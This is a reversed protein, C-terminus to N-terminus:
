NNEISEEVDGETELYAKELTNLQDESADWYGRNNYEMMQEVIELYAYANNEKMRNRMDEDEVYVSHMDDYIWAEVEGTTAALGMVNEFRDSIRQAGHYKHDLMGDIWKPNLLRTRIGREISKSVTETEMREGTTDTIYVKVKKGRAMEVSKSLGGFFEYYHDLDTVEYENSSRIQSVLDVCELNLEYTQKEDQGRYNESYIHKMSNIFSDGFQNEDEWNKTEIISTLNTGYEGEKPGYIRSYSLEAAKTEEMGQERLKAYINKANAKLGNMHDPEDLEAIRKFLKNLNDIINPFMDRFFGCMNVVVDVRPRKLVDLPIIEYIPEWANAAKGVNVGLYSLIQAVTEGQTRSTEIGWLIVATSKPYTDNEAKYAEITNEAIKKGREVATKTPIHRPDFQYVNYGTPLVEPNRYIDGALKAYNYGGDLLNMLGDTENNKMVKNMTEKAFAISNEFLEISSDSKFDKGDIKKNDMYNTFLQDAIKEIMDIKQHDKNELLADYDYGNDLAIIRNISLVEGQDYRLLNRTYNKAQIDSYGVGFTHFGKPILTRNMRFLEHELEDLDESLNSDKAAIKINNLIDDCGAPSKLKAERYDDIMAKLTVFENYLEGNIYESPQYSVINAHARRKAIMAESPNGSYYLYFHPVDSILVDPICLGSMGCEKGKTFEMTGHTGVHIVADTDFENNLWQYFAFYQHHCVQSKDHYVNESNEHIGRTPQLGIFVNGLVIGPILFDGNETMIDGPAEGWSDVLEDYFPKTKVEDLYKSVNYKIMAEDNSFYRASNIIGESTFAKILEDSSKPEVNYGNQKLDALLKEVSKFTDLFSGGFLNAEGPPYNYCVISIKKDHNKKHKLRLLKKVRGVLKDVRDDILELENLDINLENDYEPECMAGIPISEVVGDLEPLMISLMFEMSTVGQISEDWESIKRKSMFFPHIYPANIENLIDVATQADGGMPGASLRFSMFNIIVDVKRGTSKELLEKLKSYYEVSPSSFAIPIINSFASLRDCIKSINPATNNPYTHGYFLVAIVPKKENFSYDKKYEKYTNYYKKTKPSCIKLEPVEQAKEPKPISSFGGYERLLFLLMNKMNYEDAISFYKTIQSLNGMDRMKGPMVKGMKEAMSSMKKMAKMDPKKDSKGMGMMPKKGNGMNSQMSKASFQGLKMYDRGSRGYPIVDASTKELADYVEKIIKEPSGMLDILLMDSNIIKAKMEILKDGSISNAAYFVHLSLANPYEKRIDHYVRSLANIASTSVTVVTFKM